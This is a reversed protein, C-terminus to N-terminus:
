TALFNIKNAVESILVGILTFLEKFLKNRPFGRGIMMSIPWSHFKILPLLLQM